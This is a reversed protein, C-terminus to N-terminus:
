SETRKKHHTTFLVRLKRWLYPVIIMIAMVVIVALMGDGLLDNLWLTSALLIFFYMLDGIITLAWGSIFGHGAAKAVARGTMPETGFTILILSLPRPRLGYKATLKQTTLAFAMRLRTFFPKEQSARLFLLMIPEFVCALILDSVIYVGTTVFWSFGRQKALVIGAPIGGGVPILFLLLVEWATKLFTPAAVSTVSTMSEVIM